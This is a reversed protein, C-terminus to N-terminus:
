SQRSPCQNSFICIRCEPKQSHCVERGFLNATMSFRYWDKEPLSESITKETKVPDRDPTLGLRCVVRSFHTDVIIAPLSFCEGRVCNATKRGVGPLATLEEMSQPVEGNYKEAIIRSCEIIHEAKTKFFGTKKIIQGVTEPDAEALAQPTPYASFLAPAVANVSKDTTQASMIVCLLFRWPEQPNLFRIKQPAWSDLREAITSINM